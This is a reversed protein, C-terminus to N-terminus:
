GAQVPPSLTRVATELTGPGVAEISIAQSPIPIVWSYPGPTSDLASEVILTEIGDNWAVLGRQFPMKPDPEAAGLGFYKGDAIANASLALLVFLFLLPEAWSNRSRTM